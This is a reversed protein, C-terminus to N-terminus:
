LLVPESRPKTESSPQTRSCLQTEPRPKQVPAHSPKPFQGPPSPCPQAGLQVQCQLLSGVPKGPRAIAAWVEVVFEDPFAIGGLRLGFPTCVGPRESDERPRRWWPPHQLGLLPLPHPNERPSPSGQEGWPSDRLDM